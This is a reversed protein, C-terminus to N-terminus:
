EGTAKAIVAFCISQLAKSRQRMDISAPDDGKIWDCGNLDALYSTARKLGELLEPAAAILRANAVSMDSKGLAKWAPNNVYADAAAPSEMLCIGLDTVGGTIHIPYVSGDEMVERDIVKWPAPTHNKNM